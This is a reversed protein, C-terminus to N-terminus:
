RRTRGEGSYIRLDENDAVIDRYYEQYCIGQDSAVESHVYVSCLSGAKCLFPQGFMLDKTGHWCREERGSAVVKYNARSREKRRFDGDMVYIKYPGIEGAVAIGLIEIDDIPGCRVPFIVGNFTHDSEEPPVPTYIRKRIKEMFIVVFVVFSFCFCFAFQHKTCLGRWVFCCRDSFSTLVIMSMDATQSM